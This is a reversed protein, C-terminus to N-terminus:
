TEWYRKRREKKRENVRREGGQENREKDPSMPVGRRLLIILIIMVPRERTMNVCGEEEQINQNTEICTILPALHVGRDYLFKSFFSNKKKTKM